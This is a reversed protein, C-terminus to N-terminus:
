YAIYTFVPDQFDNFVFCDIYIDIPYVSLFMRLFIHPRKPMLNSMIAKPQYCAQVCRDLQTSLQLYSSKM